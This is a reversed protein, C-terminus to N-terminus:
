LSIGELRGAAQGARLVKREGIAGAWGEQALECNLGRGRLEVGFNGEDHGSVM